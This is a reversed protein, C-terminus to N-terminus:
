GPEEGVGEESGRPRRGRGGVVRVVVVVALCLAALVLWGSTYDRDLLTPNDSRAGFRGLVPVATATVTVLVLLGVTVATRWTAPVVRLLVLTVVITVPAVVADHAVAAGVMWLLSDLLDAVDQRLLLVVGYASAALGALLLLARVVVSGRDAAVATDDVHAM